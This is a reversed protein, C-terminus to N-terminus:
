QADVVLIETDQLVLAPTQDAFEFSAGVTATDLPFQSSQLVIEHDEVNTVQTITTLTDGELVSACTQSLLQLHLSSLATDVEVVVDLCKVAGRTQQINESLSKFMIKNYTLLDGGELKESRLLLNSTTRHTEAAKKDNPWVSQIINRIFIFKGRTKIMNQKKTRELINQTRCFNLMTKKEIM